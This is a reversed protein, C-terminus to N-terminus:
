PTLAGVRLGCIRAAGVFFIQAVIGPLPARICPSLPIICSEESDGRRGRIGRPSIRTRLEGPGDRGSGRNGGGLCIIRQHSFNLGKGSYHRNQARLPCIDNGRNGHRFCRKTCRSKESHLQSGSPRRGGAEGNGGKGRHRRAACHRERISLSRAGGQGAWM